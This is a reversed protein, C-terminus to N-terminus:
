VYHRYLSSAREVFKIDDDVPCLDNGHAQGTKEQQKAGQVNEDGTLEAGGHIGGATIQRSLTREAGGRDQQTESRFPLSARARAPGTRQMEPLMRTASGSFNDLREDVFKSGLTMFHFKDATILTVLVHYDLHPSRSGQLMEYFGPPGPM